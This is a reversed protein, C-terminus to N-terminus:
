GVRPPPGPPAQPWIPTWTREVEVKALGQNKSVLSRANMEWPLLALKAKELKVKPDKDSSPQAPSKQEAAPILATQFDESNLARSIAEGASVHPAERIVVKCFVSVQLLVLPGGVLQALALLYLFRFKGTRLYDM